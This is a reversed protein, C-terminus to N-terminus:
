ALMVNLSDLDEICTITPKLTALINDEDDCFALSLTEFYYHFNDLGKAYPNDSISLLYTVIIQLYYGSSSVPIIKKYWVWRSSDSTPEEEQEFGLKLLQDRDAFIDHM